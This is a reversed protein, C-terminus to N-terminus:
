CIQYVAVYRYLAPWGPLDEQFVKLSLLVRRHYNKREKQRSSIKSFKNKGGFSGSSGRYRYWRQWLRQTIFLKLLKRRKQSDTDAPTQVAARSGKCLAGFFFIRAKSESAFLVSSSM